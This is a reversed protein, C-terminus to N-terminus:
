PGFDILSSYEIIFRFVVGKGVVLYVIYTFQSLTNWYVTIEKYMSKSPLIEFELLTEHEM